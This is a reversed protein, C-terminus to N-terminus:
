QIVGLFQSINPNSKVMNKFGQLGYIKILKQKLMHFQEIQEQAVTLDDQTKKLHLESHAPQEVKKQDGDQGEEKPKEENKQLDKM